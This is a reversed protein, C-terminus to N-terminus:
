NFPNMPLQYGAPSKLFKKADRDYYWSVSQGTTTNWVLITDYGDKAVYTTMMIEGGLSIANPAAHAKNITSLSFIFTSACLLIGCISIGAAM